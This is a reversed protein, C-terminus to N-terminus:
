KLNNNSRKLKQIIVLICIAVRARDSCIKKNNRKLIFKKERDSYSILDCKDKLIAVSRESSLIALTATNIKSNKCVQLM